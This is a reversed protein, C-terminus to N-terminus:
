AAQARLWAAIVTPDFRVMSGIRFHPIRGRSALEYITARSMGLLGALKPATLAGREREIRSPLDTAPGTSDNRYDKMAIWPQRLSANSGFGVSENTTHEAKRDSDM